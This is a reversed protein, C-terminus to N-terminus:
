ASADAGQSRSGRMAARVRTLAYLALPGVLLVVSVLTTYAAPWGFARELLVPVGCGVLAALALAATGVVDILIINAGLQALGVAIAMAGVFAGAANGLMFGIVAGHAGLGSADGLRFGLSTFAVTAILRACNAVALWSSNGIAILARGTSEQLFGCWAAIILLQVMWGADAYVDRYLLHFFAPATMAAGLFLVAAAPLLILRAHRVDGAFAAPTERFRQSLAPMLVSNSVREGMQAPVQVIMQALGYVGILGMGELRGLAFVDYRTGLFFFITSVFVFRGFTFIERAAEKDWGLRNNPGPLMVHTLIMRVLASALSAAVLAVASHLLLALPISACLGAIQASLDLGVVRGVHMHRSAQASKTSELGSIIAQVTCLPLMWVLESRGYFQAAPYAAAVGIAFLGVGRVAHITFATDLFRRDDGRPSRVIAQWVGVDSILALGGTVAVIIAMLGFADPDLLRTLVLNSGLRLVQLALQGLLSVATGRAARSGIESM